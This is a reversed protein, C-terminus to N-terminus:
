YHSRHDLVKFDINPETREGPRQVHTQRYVPYIPSTHIDMNSILVYAGKKTKRAQFLDSSSCIAKSAKM